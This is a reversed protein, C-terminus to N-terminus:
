ELDRLWAHAGPTNTVPQQQNSDVVNPTPPRAHRCMSCEAEAAENIYTCRPCQWELVLGTADSSTTPAATPAPSTAEAEEEEAEDVAAAAGVDGAAAARENAKKAYSRWRRQRQQNQKARPAV